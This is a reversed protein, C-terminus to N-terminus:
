LFKKKSEKYMKILSKVRNLLYLRKAWPIAGHAIRDSWEKASSRVYNAGRTDEGSILNILFARLDGSKEVDLNDYLSRIFDNSFATMEENSKKILIKDHVASLKRIKNWRGYGMQLLYKKLTEKELSTWSTQLAISPYRRLLSPCNQPILHPHMLISKPANSFHYNRYLKVYELEGEAFFQQYKTIIADKLFSPLREAGLPDYDGQHVVKDPQDQQTAM